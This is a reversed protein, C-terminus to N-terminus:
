FIILFYNFILLYLLIEAVALEFVLDFTEVSTINNTDLM